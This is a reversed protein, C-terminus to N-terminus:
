KLGLQTAPGEVLPEFVLGWGSEGKDAHPAESVRILYGECNGVNWEYYSRPDDAFRDLTAMMEARPPKACCVNWRVAYASRSIPM